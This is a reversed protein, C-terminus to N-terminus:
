EMEGARLRLYSEYRRCDLRGDAVADKVACHSEHTHTCDPFKCASIYPRFDRFYNVVEEPVVDWLQFQRMGPTDVVYGGCSLPLLRANTTTHRGKETDRSVPATALRFSPELANLLSSKGVGSQGVVASSRNRLVRRLRELGFGTLASLLLVPYGMRAYVGALPMLHQADVLDVKNICVVPRTNGKEAAVILRDILNPKLPPQAASAVVLVQDINTVVVHQRGDVQRALVGRRPEIAEIIGEHQSSHEAPRFWVRDGAAVVHRQVTSLTKLLRRTVCHYLTGDDAQVLSLLGLVSLVRGPRCTARDVELLSTLSQGQEEPSHAAVLTRRRTLEDKGIREQQPVSELDELGQQQFKRTWDSARPRPTRNRRLEARIKNPKKAM